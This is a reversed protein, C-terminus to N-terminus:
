FIEKVSKIVKHKEAHNEIVKKLYTTSQVKGEDKLDECKRILDIWSAPLFNNIEYIIEKNKIEAIAEIIDTRLNKMEQKGYVEALSLFLNDTKAEFVASNFKETTVRMKKWYTDYARRRIEEQIDKEKVFPRSRLSNIYEMDVLQEMEKQTFQPLVYGYYDIEYRDKSKIMAEEKDFEFTYSVIVRGNKNSVVSLTSYQEPIRKQLDVIATKLKRTVERQPQDDSIDLAKRIEDTDYTAIGVTRWQKLLKYLGKGAATKLQKQQMYEFVTFESKLNNFLEIAEDSVSFSLIGNALNTKYGYFVVWREIDGSSNTYNYQFQLLKNYFNELMDIMQNRSLKYADIGTADKLESFTINIKDSGREVAKMCMFFLLDYDTRSFGIGQTSIANFKNSYKVIKESM